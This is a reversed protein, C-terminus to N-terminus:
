IGDTKACTISSTESPDRPSSLVTYEAKTGSLTASIARQPAALQVWTSFAPVQYLPFELSDKGSQRLWNVESHIGSETSMM